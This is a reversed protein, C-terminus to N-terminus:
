TGACPGPCSSCYGTRYVNSSRPVLATPISAAASLGAVAKKGMPHVVADMVKDRVVRGHLRPSCGLLAEKLAKRKVAKEVMSVFADPELLAFRPSRRQLVSTTSGESAAGDDEDM